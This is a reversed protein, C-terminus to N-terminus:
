QVAAELELLESETRLPPEPVRDVPTKIAGPPQPLNVDLTTGRILSQHPASECHEYEIFTTATSDIAHSLM